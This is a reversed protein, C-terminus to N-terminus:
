VHLIQRAQRHTRCSECSEYSPYDRRAPDAPHSIPRLHARIRVRAVNRTSLKARKHVDETVEAGERSAEGFPM